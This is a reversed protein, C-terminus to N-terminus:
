RKYQSLLGDIERLKEELNKIIAGKDPIHGTTGIPNKLHRLQSAISNRARRLENSMKENKNLIRDSRSTATLKEWLDSLVRM